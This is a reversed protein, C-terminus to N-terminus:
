SLKILLAADEYTELAQSPTLTGRRNEWRKKNWKVLAQTYGREYVNSSVEEIGIVVGVLNEVGTLTHAYGVLDGINIKDKEM